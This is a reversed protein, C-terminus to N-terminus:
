RAAAGSVTLIWAYVFATEEWVRYRGTRGGHGASMETRLLVPKGSTTKEQLAAVWKAAETFMVRTDNLSAMALIEPYPRAAVNEYPSYERMYRYVEPDHLPDGWEDWEIVTLPLEPDLMSTLADVFPVEALVGAFLEPALNTVAGVLLGGASGGDAVLQEPTTRGAAILHRAVDVFDTFTNKKTLEKGNEYWNRGMEGGGRVHAIVMVMGRDLLSLRSVSFGPDMPAEYAGYGYLLLPAPGDPLDTRCIISIPIQTGDAATVWERDARYRAPDYGGLVPQEKLLTLEGSRVDLNLVQAPDVFSGYGIRLAPTDWEANAGLGVSYLEQDFVVPVFDDIGPLEPRGRLDAIALRPLADQRYSLVLYDQFCDVDEIRRSPDHAIWERREDPRGVPMVDVAYDVAPGTATPGNHVIVFLDEGGLVAHEVSYEVGDTRGAVSVFEGTPDSADLVFNESTIKSGCGIVLYKESHTAGVGVWFREDPEYFVRTDATGAGVDHRWVTDPRWAEDVTLYFLHKADPSWTAGGATGAIVDDLLEGTQLDKIRLTYREDGVLDTSYALWRGDLSVSCAGLAFFDHGEALENSDLLVEEGPLEEGPTVQPPTWDDDGSIPCRCRIGYQLGEVTRTYYWHRESRIPVSMDTEQTRSRIENFVAERLPAQGATATETFENQQELYAIVEPDDRDRLWEYDDVFVDGHYERRVPVKKAIPPVARDPVPV